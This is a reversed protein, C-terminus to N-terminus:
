DFISELLYSGFECFGDMKTPDVRKGITEIPYVHANLSIAHLLCM